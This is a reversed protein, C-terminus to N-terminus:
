NNILTTTVKGKGLDEQGERLWLLRFEMDVVSGVLRTGFYNLKSAAIKYTCGRIAATSRQHAVSFSKIKYINSTDSGILTAERDSAHVTKALEFEAITPEFEV